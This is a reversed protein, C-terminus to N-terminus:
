QARKERHKIANKGGLLAGTVAGTLAAAIIDEGTIDGGKAQAAAAISALSGAVAGQVFKVLSKRVDYM